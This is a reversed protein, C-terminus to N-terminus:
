KKRKTNKEKFDELLFLMTKALTQQHEELENVKLQLEIGKFAMLVCSISLLILAM